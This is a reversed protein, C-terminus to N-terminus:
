RGPQLHSWAEEEEARDWDVALAAESLLGTTDCADPTQGAPSTRQIAVRRSIEQLFDNWTADDPLQEIIRLAEEKINVTAIGPEPSHASRWFIM